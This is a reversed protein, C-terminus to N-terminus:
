QDSGDRAQVKGSHVYVFTGNPQPQVEQIVYADQPLYGRRHYYDIESWAQFATAEDYLDLLTAFDANM